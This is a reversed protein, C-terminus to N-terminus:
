SSIPGSPPGSTGDDDTNEALFREFRDGLEDATPMDPVYGTGDNDRAMQDYGDELTKVMAQLEPSDEVEDELMRQSAEVIDGLEMLPIELAATESVRRLLALTGAPYPSRTLYHPIQAVFGQCRIGGRQLEKELVPIFSGPMEFVQEPGAGTAAIGEQADASDGSAPHESTDCQEGPGDTDAGTTDASGDAPPEEGLALQNAHTLMTITRTHPTESPIARLTVVQDIGFTDALAVVAGALLNWRLDPEPGELLLFPRSADDYVLHLAIEPMEVTRYRRGDYVVRPRSSRYDLLEDSDFRAIRISRLNEQFYTAATRCTQGADIMGPICVVLPLPGSPVAAIVEHDELQYLERPDRM